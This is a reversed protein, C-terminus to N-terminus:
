PQSRSPLAAHESEEPEVLWYYVVEPDDSVVQIVMPESPEGPQAAASGPDDLAARRPPDTATRDLSPAGERRGSRQRGPEGRGAEEIGSKPALPSPLSPASELPEVAPPSGHAGRPAARGPEPGPPVTRVAQRVPAGDDGAPRRLWLGTGLVGLVLTAALAAALWPKWAALVTRDGRDAAEIRRLVGARVRALAAENVPESALARLVRRDADLEDALERALSRCEPCAALHEEMRAAEGLPLDGGAHLALADELNKPHSPHRTM